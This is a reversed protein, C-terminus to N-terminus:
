QSEDSRAAAEFSRKRGYIYAGVRRMWALESDDLPGLELARVAEHTQEMSSPGSLCVDVSPNTLAFRYCDTATPMREGPPTRKADLLQRWSTATFAVIGPRPNTKLLAFVEREAGTHVANYRVHFIEFPSGAALQPILPRNHTSLALHRVRGRRQLDLCIDLIRPPVPHGWLGMLLVDAYDAHLMRLAREVSWPVLRGIRSYSQLVLAYDSRRPALRRVGEAFAATRRSGWYFYNIGHEFAYGVAEAPAGYSAGLGIAGVRLGSRGLVRQDSSM